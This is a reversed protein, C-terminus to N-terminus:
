FGKSTAGLRFSTRQGAQEAVDLVMEALLDRMEKMSHRTITRAPPGGYTVTLVGDRIAAKIADVDEQTWGIGAM